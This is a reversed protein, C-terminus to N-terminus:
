IPILPPYTIFGSINFFVLITHVIPGAECDGSTKSCNILFPIFTALNFKECPDWSSCRSFILVIFLILLFNFTGKPSISSVFPGSILIPFNSSFSYKKFGSSIKVSVVLFITPFLSITDTEYSPKGCSTSFPEIIETSSPKIWSSTISILSPVSITQLTCFLPTIELLLPTFRGPLTVFRGDIVGFSTSSILNPISFPM